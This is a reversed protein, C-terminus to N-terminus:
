FEMVIGLEQNLLIMYCQDTGLKKSTMTFCALSLEKNTQWRNCIQSKQSNWYQLGLLNMFLLWWHIDHHPTNWHTTSYNHNIVLLLEWSQEKNTWFHTHQQRPLSNQTIDDLSFRSIWQCILGGITWQTKLRYVCKHLKLHIFRFGVSVSTCKQSSRNSKWTWYLLASAITCWQFFNCM